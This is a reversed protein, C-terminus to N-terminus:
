LLVALRAGHDAPSLEKIARDIERVQLSTRGDAVTGNLIHEAVHDIRVRHLCRVGVPEVDHERRGVDMDTGTTFVTEMNGAEETVVGSKLFPGKQANAPLGDVVRHDRVLGAVIRDRSQSCELLKG